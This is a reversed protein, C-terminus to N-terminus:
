VITENPGHQQLNVRTEKPSSFMILTDSSARYGKRDGFKTFKCMNELFALLSACNHVKVWYAPPM